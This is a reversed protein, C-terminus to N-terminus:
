DLFCGTNLVEIWTTFNKLTQLPAPKEEEVEMALKDTSEDVILIGSTDSRAQSEEAAKAILENLRQVIWCKSHM